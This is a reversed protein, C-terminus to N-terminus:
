FLFATFMFSSNLEWDFGLFYISLLHPVCPIFGFLDLLTLTVLSPTFKQFSIDKDEFITTITLESNSVNLIGLSFSISFSKEGCQLLPIEKLQEDDSSLEGLSTKSGEVSSTKLSFPIKIVVINHQGFKIIIIM